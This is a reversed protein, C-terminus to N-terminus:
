VRFICTRIRRILLGSLPTRDVGILLLPLSPHKPAKGSAELRAEAEAVLASSALLRIRTLTNTETDLAEVAQLAYKHSEQDKRGLRAGATCAANLSFSAGVFMVFAEIFAERNWRHEARRGSVYLYTRITTGCVSAAGATVLDAAVSM